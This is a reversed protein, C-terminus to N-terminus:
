VDFDCRFTFQTDEQETIIIPREVLNEIEWSVSQGFSVDGNDDVNGFAWFRQLYLEANHNYPSFHHPVQQMGVLYYYKDLLRKLEDFKQEDKTEFDGMYLCPLLRKPIVRRFIDRHHWIYPYGFRHLWFHDIDYDVNSDYVTLKVDAIPGSYVPMSYANHNGNFLKKYIDKILKLQKKDVERLTTQLVKWNIDGNSNRIGANIKNCLDDVLESCKTADYKVHVPIYVWFPKEDDLSPSEIPSGSPHYGNRKEGEEISNATVYTLRTDFSRGGTAIEYVFQQVESDVDVEGDSEGHIANYIYTEVLEVHSLLPLFTQRVQGNKYLYPLGNIHDKHLHSIFLYDVVKNRHLLRDINREIVRKDKGGCDYVACFTQENDSNYFQETYFAGHGVPWFTRHLSLHCM